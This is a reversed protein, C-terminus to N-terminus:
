TILWVLCISIVSITLFYLVTAILICSLIRWVLICRLWLSLILCLITRLYVLCYIFVIRIIRNLLVVCLILTYCYIIFFFNRFDLIVALINISRILCYWTILIFKIGFIWRLIWSLNIRFVLGLQRLIIRFIRWLNFYIILCIIL